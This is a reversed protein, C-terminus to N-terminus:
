AQLDDGEWKGTSDQEAGGNREMPLVWGEEQWGPAGCCQSAATSHAWVAWEAVQGGGEGAALEGASLHASEQESPEM